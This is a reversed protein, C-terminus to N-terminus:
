FVIRIGGPALGKFGGFRRTNQLQMCNEFTRNCYTAPGSYGCAPSKFEWNCHEAIFRYTPFRRRLPNPAGLTFSVWQATVETALIDFTMELETYDENLYAANVVTIKVTSGVGGTFQELYPQLIRTVNSVRLTITPIEGKSTSRTPEIEFPIALYTNGKFVVDETNRALYLTTGDPLTIDLLIIWPNPTALKNKEIILNAPLNLAM